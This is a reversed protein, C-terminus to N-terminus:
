GACLNLGPATDERNVEQIERQKKEAVPSRSGRDCTRYHEAWGCPAPEWPQFGTLGHSLTFKQEKLNDEHANQDSHCLTVILM